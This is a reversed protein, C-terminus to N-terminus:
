EETWISRALRTGTCEPSPAPRPFGSETAAAATFATSCRKPRATQIRTWVTTSRLERRSGGASWSCASRVTRARTSCPMTWFCTRLSSCTNAAAVPTKIEHGANTIFQKQREMNAAYSRVVRNSMPLLIVFLAALSILGIRLASLLIGSLMRISASNDMLVLRAGSDINQLLYKYPGIKGSTRGSALIQEGYGRAEEADSEWVGRAELSYGLSRKSRIEAGADLGSIRDEVEAKATLLLVPASIGERRLGRLVSLGDRRPMMIDLIIGDYTQSRAYQLAAEGGYVADVSYRHYNLIDAVAESM